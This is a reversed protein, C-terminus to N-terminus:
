PIVEQVIPRPHTRTPAVANDATIPLEFWFRAGGGEANEAGVRGGHALVLARVVALGLGSTGTARDRAPDAQYFREFLHPIDVPDVGRGTDQVSIRIADAGVTTAQVTIV